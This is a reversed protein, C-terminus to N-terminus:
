RRSEMYDIFEEWTIDIGNKSSTKGKCWTLKSKTLILDGKFENHTDRIEFEIGSNKLEMNVKFKKIAVNM